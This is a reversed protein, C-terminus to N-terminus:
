WQLKLAFQIVRASEGTQIITQTSPPAVTACCTQAFLSSRISPSGSSADRPNDFNPHNLANFMETRFQLNVRETLSFRKNIGLDLNWYGPAVFINRGAGNSGPAPIAFASADRFVVPGTIGPVNQLKAEVPAIVDARSEHSFNSTRIGSRVSFPEGSLATFIGNVSWGGLLQNFLSNTNGLFAKGRGVPLEYISNISLAHTRDFDSRSRELRFNRSDIPARSTTSNPLGSALAIGGGSAAGVPDVSQNDISKGFTYALGFGFGSGFRKRLTFQAAHYYSDGGSDLYTITSFQQNPRLRANPTTQEIRGAYNGAGNLILDSVSTSSNSFSSSIIGSNLLPIATARVPNVCPVTQTSSLNGSGDPLCNNRVNQQMLLFSPLIPDANIQNIDYGRFLRTGRRGIYAAQMVFGGPLERQFSLSWEHVTPLKLQPAFVTLPPATGYNQLPPTLQSSPTVNPPSFTTPFNQGTQGLRVDPVTGCPTTGGPIASCTLLLGPVRGAVATVQFTSLPDFALGYGLRIVSRDNSGFVTKLLGSKWNPSYALGVRPGIAGVNNREFWRKAPVFTVLGPSGVIPTSPVFVRGGPTTPAPNIEWRAGYNLTLNPRVKWEDQFYLNYQNIHHAEAFLTVKDGIQFPLYANSTFDGIFTQSLRAPIGLLDNAANLLTTNDTGNIGIRGTAAVSPLGNLAPARTNSSFSITPTINIGGPQGRQDVHKYFRFNFGTRFLHAGKVISLNDLIQPTTIARATRPTNNYPESTNAFDFPPINPFSPNAEGQTFLFVFRSYGLTLENVVRPSLVRRYSLALNSTNRFVEGLPPFGPFVQPRGNLPDGGLTNYKSYLLRGFITNNANFTHDIRAMIAPGEVRAAPNSLYAATNLGDGFGYSNPAPYSKFLAGAVPDLGIGRPDGGFINYTAVCNTDTTTACTRVGPLLNGTARDVLLPTNRTIPQGNLLFPTTPDARFYRFNGALAAPTYIVPVGFTQDVPQSSTINNGQYSGFFFTKNQKIPGGVEVGYQSLKIKPKPLGQANAFFENSNLADNRLFYFATGHLENTGSRTAVSIAAGSNRGEEATANNTTVKYEQVNDPNLRYLNSVPNPVSSENAEIGDITVNFARDRSGNVHVGSGAAGASRQVVGPELTILTLPNRGNLPLAEITKQEVVNSITANSTQLQETGGQVSVVESVQGIEMVADVALPTNVQLANGTKQFTKFGSREVTVTYDGVPLSPFAYVGAETTTQTQTTGTAENKVTVTAGPVVAGKDDIVTGTIRSTGTQALCISASIALLLLLYNTSRAIRFM